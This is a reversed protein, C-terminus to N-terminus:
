SVADVTLVPMTWSVAIEDGWPIGLFLHPWRLFWAMLCSVHQNKKM